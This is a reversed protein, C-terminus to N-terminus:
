DVSVSFQGTTKPPFSLISEALRRVPLLLSAFCSIVLFIELASLQVKFFWCLARVGVDRVVCFCGNWLM